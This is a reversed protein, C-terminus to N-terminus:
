ISPRCSSRRPPTFREAAAEARHMAAAVDPRHALLEVPLQRPVAPAAPPSMTKAGVIGRGADPGQGMLRALLNQQFDLQATVGAERKVAAELEASAETM